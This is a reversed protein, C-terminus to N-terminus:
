RLMAGIRGNRIECDNITGVFRGTFGSITKEIEFFTVSGSDPSLVEAIIQGMHGSQSYSGRLFFGGLLPDANWVQMNVTNDADQNIEITVPEDVKSGPVCDRHWGGLYKGSLNENSWTQRTVNKVVPITGLTYTLTATNVTDSDFTLTGVKTDVVARPSFPGLFYPGTHTYLDGSFVVHGAAANSQYFAAATFWTPKADNGYVFIDVFLVDGQQLVSAGWGSETPVWWQDSFNTTSAARVAGTALVAVSLSAILLQRLAKM